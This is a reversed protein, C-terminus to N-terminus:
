PLFSSNGWNHSVGSYLAHKSNQQAYAAAIAQTKYSYPSSSFHSSHGHGPPPPPPPGSGQPPPSLSRGRKLGPQFGLCDM